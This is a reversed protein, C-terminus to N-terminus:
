PERLEPFKARAAASMPGERDGVACRPVRHPHGEGRAQDAAAPGGGGHNRMYSCTAVPEPDSWDLDAPRAGVAYLWTRKRARHGYARQSVETVWGGAGEAWAGRRPRPLGHAPWARSEAPHELVGGWRRVAALAAAFLGGDDGVRHGYRAQIVHALQCWASCPPHAVVPWPGAYALADRARGDYPVVGPLASYAGGRAVFLAAIM